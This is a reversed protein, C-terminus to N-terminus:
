AATRGAAGRPRGRRRGLQQKNSEEECRRRRCPRRRWPIRSQFYLNKGLPVKSFSSVDGASGAYRGDNGPTGLIKMTPSCARERLSSRRRAEAGIIRPPWAQSSECAQGNCFAGMSNALTPARMSLPRLLEPRRSIKPSDEMVRRVADVPMSRM